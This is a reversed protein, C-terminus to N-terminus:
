AQGGMSRIIEQLGSLIQQKALAKQENAQKIEGKLRNIQAEHQAIQQELDAVTQQHRAENDHIAERLQEFLATPDHYASFTVGSLTVDDTVPAAAGGGVPNSVPPTIPTLTPEEKTLDFVVEDANYLDPNVSLNPLNQDNTM